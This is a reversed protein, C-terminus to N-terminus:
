NSHPSVNEDAQQQGPDRQRNIPGHAPETEDVIIVVGSTERDLRNVLHPKPDRTQPKPNPTGSKPNQIKFLRPRAPDRKAL